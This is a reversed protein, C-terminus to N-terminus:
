EKPAIKIERSQELTKCLSILDKSLAIADGNIYHLKNDEIIFSFIPPLNVGGRKLEKKIYHLQVCHPAKNVSAFVLQTIQGTSLMAQIKTIAMNIHERELCVNMVFDFDGVLNAYGIPQMKPLCSGCILVKGKPEYINTEMLNQM